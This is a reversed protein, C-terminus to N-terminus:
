RASGRTPPRPSLARPRTAASGDHVAMERDYGLKLKVATGIVGFAFAGLAFVPSTGLARDVLWGLLGFLIPTVVLEFGRVFANSFGNNLDQRARLDFM